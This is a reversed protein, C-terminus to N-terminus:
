DWRLRDDPDEGPAVKRKGTKVSAAPSIVCIHRVVPLDFSRKIAARHQNKTAPAGQLTRRDLAVDAPM